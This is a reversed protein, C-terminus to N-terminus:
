NGPSFFGALHFLANILVKTIMQKVQPNQLQEAENTENYFNRQVTPLIENRLGIEILM